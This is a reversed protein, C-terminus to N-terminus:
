VKKTAGKNGFSIGIAEATKVMPHDMTVEKRKHAVEELPTAVYKGDKVSVTVGFKKKGILEAAFAGIGTALGRDYASPSGGRLIHGPIVVRTEFGTKDQIMQSIRQAVPLYDKSKKYKKLEEKDMKSEALSRAGEAVVVISFKKGKVNHRFNIADVLDEDIYPIEPIIIVDAGGSIGINLSLWGAKNGMMEVVLVRNHSEATTHLRDLIESGTDVATQYGFTMDTGWIDNDITKPLGIVNLGNERLLNANKHTGGGGLCVLCDLNFQHYNDVLAKVKDVGDEEIVQMKKFPTRVSHLMTGGKHLIGDFDRRSMVVANGEILGKFGEQIGVFECNLNNYSAKVLGRITANLGPCDGGSTLIGIRIKKDNNNSMNIEERVCNAM